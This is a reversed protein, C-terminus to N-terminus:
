RCAGHPLLVAQQQIKHKPVQYCYLYLSMNYKHLMTSTSVRITENVRRLGVHYTRDITMRMKSILYALHPFASHKDLTVDVAFSPAEHQDSRSRLGSM